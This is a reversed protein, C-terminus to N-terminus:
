WSLGKEVSELTKRLEVRLGDIAEKDTKTLKNTALNELIAITLTCVGRLTYEPTKEEKNDVNVNEGSKDSTTTNDDKNDVNVKEGSKDSTTNEGDSTTTNDGDSTKGNTVVETGDETIVVNQPQIMAKIEDITMDPSANNIVSQSATTLLLLKRAGFDSWRDTLVNRGENDTEGFRAFIKRANSLTGHSIGWEKQALEDMNKYGLLKAGGKSEIEAIVPSLLMTVNHMAHFCPAVLDVQQRAINKDWKAITTAKPILGSTIYAKENTTVSVNTNEM